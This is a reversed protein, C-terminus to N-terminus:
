AGPVVAQPCMAGDNAQIYRVCEALLAGVKQHGATNWHVDTPNTNRYDELTLLPRPDLYPIGAQEAAAIIPWLSDRSANEYEEKGPVLVGVVPIGREEALAAVAAYQASNFTVAAEDMNPYYYHASASLDANAFVRYVILGLRSALIAQGAPTVPTIIDYFRYVIEQDTIVSWQFQQDVVTRDVWKYAGSVSNRAQIFNIGETSFDGRDNYSLGIVILAPQMMPAHHVVSRAINVTGTGPFGVNWVWADPVSAEMTEIYSSGLDATFGVTFSDGSVMIPYAGAPMQAPDFDRSSYHGTSNFIQDRRPPETPALVWDPFPNAVCGTECNFPRLKVQALVDATLAPRRALTLLLELAILGAALLAAGGALGRLARGVGRAWVIAAVLVAAGVGVTVLRGVPTGFDFALLFGGLLLTVLGLAVGFVVVWTRM